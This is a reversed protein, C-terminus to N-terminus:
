LAAFVTCTTLSLLVVYATLLKRYVFNFPNQTQNCLTSIDALLIQHTLQM